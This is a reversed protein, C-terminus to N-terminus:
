KSNRESLRDVGRSLLIGIAFAITGFGIAAVWSLGLSVPDFLFALKGALTQSSLSLSAWEAFFAFYAAFLTVWAGLLSGHRYGISVAAVVGVLTADAPLFVVGGDVAFVGTAYGIFTGVAIVVATLLDLSREFRDAFLFKNLVSM